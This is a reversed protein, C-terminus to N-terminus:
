FQSTSPNQTLKDLEEAKRQVKAEQKAWFKKVVENINKEERFKRQWQRLEQIESDCRVRYGRWFSQILISAEEESLLLSLPIPPRPHDKIWDKVFPISFLETFSEDKRKPNNNYLWETLFDSPIFKTRRREFCKKKEAEQLLAALGPLVVPFIYFELYERPSCKTPDPPEGPPVEGLIPLVYQVVPLSFFEEMPIPPLTEAELPASEQKSEPDEKSQPVDSIESIQSNETEREAAQKGRRRRAAM